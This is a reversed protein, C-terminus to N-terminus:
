ALAMEVAKRTLAEAEGDLLAEAADSAATVPGFEEPARSRSYVLIARIASLMVSLNPRPSSGILRPFAESTSNSANTEAKPGIAWPAPAADRSCPNRVAHEAGPEQARFGNDAAM